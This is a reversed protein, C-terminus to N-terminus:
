NGLPGTMFHNKIYWLSSFKQIYFDISSTFGLLHDVIATLLASNSESVIFKAIESFKLLFCNQQQIDHSRLTPWSLQAIKLDFSTDHQNTVGIVFM